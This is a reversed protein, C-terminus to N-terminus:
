PALDSGGRCYGIPEDIHAGPIPLEIGKIGPSSGRKPAVRNAPNTRIGDEDVGRWDDGRAHDIDARGVMLYESEVQSGPGKLFELVDDSKAIAATKIANAFEFAHQFLASGM